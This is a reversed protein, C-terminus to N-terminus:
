CTPIARPVGTMDASALASSPDHTAQAAYQADIANDIDVPAAQQSQPLLRDTERANRRAQEFNGSRLLECETQVARDSAALSEASTTGMAQLQVRMQHQLVECGTQAPGALLVTFAVQDPVKEAVLPALSGGQSHGLLGVRTRDIDSRSGLYSIQSVVDTVLDDYTAEDKDGTTKGIGRDDTRLVAYGEKTLADALLSFPKYEGFKEDRNQKGGGPVLIVAPFPGDGEPVTLTGGIAIDDHEILVDAARYQRDAAASPSSSHDATHPTTACGTSVALPLATMFALAGIHKPRFRIQKTLSEGSHGSAHARRCENAAPDDNNNM